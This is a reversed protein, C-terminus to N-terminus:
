QLFPNQMTM